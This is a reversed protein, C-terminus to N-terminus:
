DNANEKEETESKTMELLVKRCLVYRGECRNHRVVGQVPPEDGRDLSWSYRRTQREPTDRAKTHGLNVIRVDDLVGNQDSIVLKLM